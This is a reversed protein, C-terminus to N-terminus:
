LAFFLYWSVIMVVLPWIPESHSIGGRRALVLNHAQTFVILMTIAGIILLLLRFLMM